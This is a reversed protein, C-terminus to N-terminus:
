LLSYDLLRCLCITTTSMALEMRACWAQLVQNEVDVGCPEVIGPLFVIAALWLEPDLRGVKACLDASADESDWYDCHEGRMGSDTAHVFDPAAFRYTGMTCYGFKKSRLQLSSITETHKLTLLLFGNCCHGQEPPVDAPLFVLNQWNWSGCDDPVQVPTWDVSAVYRSVVRQVHWSVLWCSCM